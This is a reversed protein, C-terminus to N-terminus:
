KVMQQLRHFACQGAQSSLFTWTVSWRLLTHLKKTSASFYRKNISNMYVIITAHQGLLDHARLFTIPPCIQM